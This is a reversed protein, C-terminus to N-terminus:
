DPPMLRPALPPRRLNRRAPYNKSLYDLIARETAPQFQWLNQTAQMWRIMGLWTERDARQQTVLAHSHCGGCHARVDQWGPAVILGTRPDIEAHRDDACVAGAPLSLAVAIATVIALMIATRRM